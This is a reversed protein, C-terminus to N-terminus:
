SGRGARRTAQTTLRIYQASAVVNIKTLDLEYNGTTGIETRGVIVPTLVFDHDVTGSQELLAGIADAVAAVAAVGGGVISNGSVYTEPLGAIRKAGHRTVTTTRVLRFGASTFSPTAEQVVTGLTGVPEEFLDVGNTLNRIILRDHELGDNQMARVDGLVLVEFQDAIDQYDVLSEFSEVRYFYVNLVEQSLYLQVDTIQLIDNAAIAM